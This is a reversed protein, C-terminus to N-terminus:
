VQITPPRSPSQLNKDRIEPDLSVKVLDWYLGHIKDYFEKLYVQKVIKSEFEKPNKWSKYLLVAEGEALQGNKIAPNWVAHAIEDREKRCELLQDLITKLHKTWEETLELEKIRARFATIRRKFADGMERVRPDQMSGSSKQMVVLSLFLLDFQLEVHSWAAIVRGLDAFYSESIGMMFSSHEPM